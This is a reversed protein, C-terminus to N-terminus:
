GVKSAPATKFLLYDGARTGQSYLMNGLDLQAPQWDALAADINDPKSKLADALDLANSAAKSTSAATHPRPIFAADGILVVRGKVMSKVTLDRIAQGFPQETAKVIERFPAPLLRDADKYVTAKWEDGLLGEPMAYGRYKGNRDTMISRLQEADATRYWVWNYLRHGDNTNQDTGPVLYGLIHSHRNNAFAFDGHLGERAVDPMKNEDVLGRWALYGAYTPQAEPWLLTRVTSGNGDAGILLDGTEETGDSFVATVTRADDDQTIDVLTKGQHYSGDGFVDKMTAYILSWSTQMQPAIQKSEIRGDPRFVRRHRSQVGRNTLTGNAKTRNFVRLVDPQLVVGGGRSDLDSKSREYIDVQWGIERLLAGSFLGSLSGGIIIARRTRKSKVAPNTM